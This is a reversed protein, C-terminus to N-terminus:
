RTLGLAWWLLQAGGFGAALGIGLKQLFALDLGRGAASAPAGQGKAQASPRASTSAKSSASRGPAAGAPPASAAAEAEPAAEGDGSPEEEKDLTIKLPSGPTGLPSFSGSTHPSQAFVGTAQISSPMASTMAPRHQLRRVLGIDTAGGETTLAELLRKEHAEPLALGQILDAM